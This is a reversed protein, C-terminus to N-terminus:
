NGRSTSASAPKLALKQVRWNNMDAVFLVDESPCALGHPWNFQKPGRGSEGLMGLIKGDLSLKYLRGPDSDMAFLYQTPGSTNICLTWPATANPPNPNVPALTPHRTKDYAANLWIYKKFNGNSDYVHIRGNGRDGVYVNGQRDVQMTHPNRFQGDGMGYSGWSKIWDGNKNMKAIRSNIYGDSVFINDDPDWAVDTPGDFLGDTARKEAPTAHELHASDYGEPRRGLNMTVFGAPNFKVVSNTGKDVYWLNDYKDFRVAHGYGMGYVGKGIERLFKGNADFEWLQSTANGYLPGATATGPHNLVVINGKSNVAVGLTEGFNQDATIKFFNPVVDFPIVPVDTVIPVSQNPGPAGRGTQPAAEPATAGRQAVVFVSAAGVTVAILAGFGLSKVSSKV